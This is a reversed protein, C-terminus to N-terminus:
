DDSVGTLGCSWQCDSVEGVEVSALATSSFSWLLGSVALTIKLTVSGKFISELSCAAVWEFAELRGLVIGGASFDLCPAFGWGVGWGNVELLRDWIPLGRM